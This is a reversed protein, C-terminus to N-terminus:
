DGMVCPTDHSGVPLVEMWVLDSSCECQGIPIVLRIEVGEGSVMPREANQVAM